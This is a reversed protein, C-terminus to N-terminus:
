GQKTNTMFFFPAIEPLWTADVSTIGRVYQRTTRIIENFIICEPAKSHLVSSPHIKVELGTSIVKYVGNTQRRAAHPFLGSVLSRRIQVPDTETSLHTQQRVGIMRAAQQRIQEFIDNSKTLARPNIFNERCWAKRQKKPISRWAIYVALLTLHDGFPSSFRSHADRAEERAHSPTVFVTADSSMMSVIAIIDDICGTEKSLIIARAFMPDVPLRALDRGLQTLSGSSDLAQLAYLLELARVLTAKPPPDMFDFSLPDQIGMSKLQLVVSSLNARKIEPETVDQLNLFAEETFLRYCKGPGERGARGTRQWAQAQSIPVVQLLDAGLRANYSRCKVFGPDIVYRIGPITISTEAINTSLVVKRHGKPVPDFALLQKDPPLAAYMPVVHLDGSQSSSGDKKAREVILRQAVEIEEQGTLFALIDGSDEDSHIQLVASVLADVYSEQPESVYFVNVPHQRGKVYVAQAGPFFRQYGQVDLTASMIILRFAGKRKERASKLLGLLIDTAITREHAEDLIIVSYRRLLPDLLAERLLMGDTMYKLRTTDKSSCDDFRVTYGVEGGVDVGREKAVRQAVTLAAVRRPQTCAIVGKGSSFGHDLLFQPIQTTKGSGTEGVIILVPSSKVADVLKDKVHWVPLQRRQEDLGNM